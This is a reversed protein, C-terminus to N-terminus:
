KGKKFTILWYYVIVPIDVNQDLGHKSVYKSVLVLMNTMDLYIITGVLVITHDLLTLVPIVVDEMILTVNM